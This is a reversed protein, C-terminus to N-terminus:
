RAFDGIDTLKNITLDGTGESKYMYGFGHYYNVFRTLAKM